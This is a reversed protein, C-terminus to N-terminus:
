RSGDTDIGLREAMASCVPSLCTTSENTNALPLAQSGAHPPVSGSSESFASM